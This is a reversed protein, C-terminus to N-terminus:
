DNTVCGTVRKKECAAVKYEEKGGYDMRFLIKNVRETGGFSERRCVLKSDWRM